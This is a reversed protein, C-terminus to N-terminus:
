DGSKAKLRAMSDLAQTAAASLPKLDRTRAPPEILPAVRIEIDHVDAHGARHLIGLLNPTEMRLRTSWAASPALLVLRNQRLNAVQFQNSLSPDVSGTLLNQLQLLLRAHSLVTGLSSGRKSLIDSPVVASRDSQPHRAM